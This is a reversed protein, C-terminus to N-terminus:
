YLARITELEQALKKIDHLEVALQMAPLRPAMLAGVIAFFEDDGVGKIEGGEEALLLTLCATACVAVNPNGSGLMDSSKVKGHRAIPASNVLALVIQALFELKSNTLPSGALERRAADIRHELVLYPPEAWRALINQCSRFFYANFLPNELFRNQSIAKAVEEILGKAFPSPMHRWKPLILKIALNGGCTMMRDLSRASKAVIKSLFAAQRQNPSTAGDANSMDRIYFQATRLGDRIGAAM